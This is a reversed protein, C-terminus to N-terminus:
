TLGIKENYISILQEAVTDWSFKNKIFEHGMSGMRQLTVQELEVVQRLGDAIADVSVDVWWGCDYDVIASWPAGKTTLVPLRHALAEGVVMGFNETHTPLIFVNASSYISAKDDKSVPGIFSIFKNLEFKKILLELEAKHGAEDPGAIQLIWGTPRVRHWAEILMSLGKVPHIRGLFLAINKRGPIDVGENNSINLVKGPLDIGNPVFHIPVGLGFAGVTAAEAESTTVHIDAQMLSAKQYLYWAARKKWKKHNLAWPQLMGRISVVRPIHHKKAVRSLHENHVLWLGNDHILDPMGFLELAQTIGGGLACLRPHVEVLLSTTASEDPAWLGVCVGAEALALALRSVSVAPGGYSSHFSTGALFVKM